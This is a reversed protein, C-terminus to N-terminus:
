QKTEPPTKWTNYIATVGTTIGAVVTRKLGATTFTGSGNLYGVLYSGVSGILAGEVASLAYKAKPHDNLWSQLFAMTMDTGEWM